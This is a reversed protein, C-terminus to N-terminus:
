QAHIYFYLLVTYVFIVSWVSQMGVAVHFEHRPATTVVLSVLTSQAGPSHGSLASLSLRRAMVTRGTM